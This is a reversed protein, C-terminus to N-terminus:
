FRGLLHNGRRDVGLCDARMWVLPGFAPRGRRNAKWLPVERLEEERTRTTVPLDGRNNEKARMGGRRFGARANNPAPTGSSSFRLALPM